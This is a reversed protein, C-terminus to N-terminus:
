SGSVKEASQNFFKIIEDAVIDPHSYQPSHGAAPVWYLRSNALAQNFKQALAAPTTKDEEGWILLTDTKILNLNKEIDKELINSMTQRLNPPCQYYDKERTLKYLLWRLKNKLFDGPFCIKGISAAIKFMRRKLKMPLSQIRIGASDILVLKEVQDDFQGTYFAAIQGGFSHGILYFPQSSNTKEALWRRYDTLQWPQDLDNDLGPIKLFLVDFGATRLRKLLPQWKSKTKPNRTWGHLIYVIKTSM